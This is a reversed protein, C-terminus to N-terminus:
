LNDYVQFQGIDSKWSSAAFTVYAQYLWEGPMSLDSAAFTYKIKGDTGDTVFSANKAVTSGDPKKFIIQKIVSASLDVISKGDQVTVQLSTGVDGVRIEDAPM